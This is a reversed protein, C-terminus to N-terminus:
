ILVQIPAFIGTSTVSTSGVCISSAETPLVNAKVPQGLGNVVGALSFTGNGVGSNLSINPFRHSTTSQLFCGTGTVFNWGLGDSGKFSAGNFMWVNASTGPLENALEGPPPVTCASAPWVEVKFSGTSSVDPAWLPEGSVGVEPRSLTPNPCYVHLASSGSGTVRSGTGVGLVTPAGPVTVRMDGKFKVCAFAASATTLVAAVVAFTFLM